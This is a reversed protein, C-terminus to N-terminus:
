SFAPAPEKGIGLPRHQLRYPPVRFQVVFTSPGLYSLSFSFSSQEQIRTTIILACHLLLCYFMKIRVMRLVVQIKANSCTSKTNSSAVKRSRFTVTAFVSPSLFCTNNGM